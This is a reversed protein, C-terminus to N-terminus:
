LREEAERAPRRGRLLRNHWALRAPFRDMLYSQWRKLDANSLHPTSWCDNTYEDAASWDYDKMTRPDYLDCGPFPCIITIGFVEPQIREVLRETRRIDAVTENPMGILFFARRELGAARAWAFTQVIREVTLGKRMDRLIRPSGSECGVNIQRCGAAKMARLMERSALAAHVNAEWPLVLGRRIKEECFAMVKEASTNWTADVFKFGDLRWDRQARQIEELLHGPERERVPNARGRLGTVAKEACFVCRFPCVRGSAFSTIRRGIQRQCLDIARGNKVLARDPLARDFDRFHGGRVIRGADGELIRLFAEEGEGVVVQDVAEEELCDRPVASPHFGGFVTRIGPNLKKLGRALRVAHRFAPSTCSFGVLDSDKAGALIEDDPDFFGQFFDIELRGRFRERAHAAIYALGLAEWVNFYHPQVLSIKM